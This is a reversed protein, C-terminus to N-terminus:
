KTLTGLIHPLVKYSPEDPPQTIDVESWIGANLLNVGTPKCLRCSGVFFSWAANVIRQYISLLIGGRQARVHEYVYWTGGPKLLKYLAKINDEQDPISCLCLVSVICDISEPEITTGEWAHPDSLSEIGLPIVEYIDGLGVDAVRRRLSEASQPNPEVGYIRTLGADGGSTQRKRLGEAEPGGHSTKSRIHAFVDAWMGSGAGVEIVRGRVPPGAIAGDDDSCTVVGNRVRGELLPLVRESANLKVDPGVTAWFNGFLAENFGEPSLLTAWQRRSVLERVTQPIHRASISMFLWPFTLSVLADKVQSKM